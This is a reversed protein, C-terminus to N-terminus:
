KTVASSLADLSSSWASSCRRLFSVSWLAVGVDVRVRVGVGAGAGVSGVVLSVWGVVLCDDGVVIIGHLWSSHGVSGM